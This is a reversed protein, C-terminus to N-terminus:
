QMHPAMSYLLAGCKWSSWIQLKVLLHLKTDYESYWKQPLELERQFPYLKQIKIGVVFANSYKLFRTCCLDRYLKIDNWYKNSTKASLFFGFRHSLSYIFGVNFMNIIWYRIEGNMWVPFSGFYFQCYWVLGWLDKVTWHKIVDDTKVAIFSTTYRNETLVEEEGCLYRKRDM